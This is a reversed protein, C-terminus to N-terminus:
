ESYDIDRWQGTAKLYNLRAASDPDVERMREYFVGDAREHSARTQGMWEYHPIAPPSIYNNVATCVGIGVVAVISVAILERM